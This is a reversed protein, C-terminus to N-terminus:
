CNRRLREMLRHAVSQRIPDNRVIRRWTNYSIGFQEQLMEDTRGRCNQELYRVCAEPIVVMAAASM